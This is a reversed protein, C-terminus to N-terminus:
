LEGGPAAILECGAEDELVETLGVVDMPPPDGDLLEPVAVQAGM